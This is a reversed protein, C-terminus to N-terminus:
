SVGIGFRFEVYNNANDFKVIPYGTSTKTASYGVMKYLPNETSTNDVRLGDLSIFHENSGEVGGVGDDVAV